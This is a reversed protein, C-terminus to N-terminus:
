EERIVSKMGIYLVVACMCLMICSLVVTLSVHIYIRIGGDGRSVTNEAKAQKQHTHVVQNTQHTPCPSVCVHILLGVMSTADHSVQTKGARKLGKLILIANNGAHRQEM